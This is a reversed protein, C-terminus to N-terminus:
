APPPPPTPPTVDPEFAQTLHKPKLRIRITEPRPKLINWGAKAIAGGILAMVLYLGVTLLGIGVPLLVDNLGFNITGLSASPDGMSEGSRVQGTVIDANGFARSTLGNGDRVTLTIVYPGPTAYTHTGPSEGSTRAGDGFDWEWSTISADGAQSGDQVTVNLGDSTWSFSATPGATQTTSPLQDRYFAGPSAALALASTFTFLLVALGLALVGLGLILNATDRKM